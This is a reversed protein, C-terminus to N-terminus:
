FILCLKILIPVVLPQADDNPKAHNKTAQTAELFDIFNKHFLKFSNPKFKFPFPQKLFSNSFFSYFFFFFKGKVKEAWRGLPGDIRDRLPGNDEEGKEKKEASASV